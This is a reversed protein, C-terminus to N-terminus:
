VGGPLPQSDSCCLTESFCKMFETGIDVWLLGQQWWKKMSWCLRSCALNVLLVFFCVYMNTWTVYQTWPCLFDCFKGLYVCYVCHSSIKYFKLDDIM